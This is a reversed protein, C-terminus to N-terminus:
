VFLPHPSDFCLYACRVWVKMVIRLAWRGHCPQFLIFREFRGLLFFRAFFINLPCLHLASPLREALISFRPSVSVSVCTRRAFFADFHKRALSRCACRIAARAAHVGILSEALQATPPAAARKLPDRSDHLRM